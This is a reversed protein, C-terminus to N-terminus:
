PKKAARSCCCMKCSRAPLRPSSISASEAINTEDTLRMEGPRRRLADPLSRPFQRQYGRLSRLIQRSEDDIEQIAKETDRISDLLDQRQTNLFDQRKASGSIRGTGAPNLPVLSGRHANQIEQYRQEVLALGRRTSRPKRTDQALEQIPANLEKRSTEDLFKLEAQRRVLEM